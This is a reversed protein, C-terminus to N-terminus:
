AIFYIPQMFNLSNHHCDCVKYWYRGALAATAEGDLTFNWVNNILEGNTELIKKDNDYICLSCTDTVIAGAETTVKAAITVTDGSTARIVNYLYEIM